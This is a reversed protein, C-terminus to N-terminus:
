SENIPADATPFKVMRYIESLPLAIGLSELKVAADLGIFDGRLWQSDPQRLYRTVHPRDQEVLLYEQFSDLAQYALFKEGHDYAGTSQSLVEVILVPNVLMEIGLQNEIKLEGCVVSVDPLRFPSAKVTKVATDGGFVQCPRDSLGRRLAYILNAAISGHSIKDAAMSFIEGGFYEFREDSNKLLEIYEEVTYKKKPAPIM